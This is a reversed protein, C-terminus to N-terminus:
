DNRGDKTIKIPSNRRRMSLTDLGLHGQPFQYQAMTQRRAYIVQFYHSCVNTTGLESPLCVSPCTDAVSMCYRKWQGHSAQNHTLLFGFNLLLLQLLPHCKNGAIIGVPCKALLFFAITTFPFDTDGETWLRPKRLHSQSFHLIDHTTEKETMALVSQNAVHSSSLLSADATLKHLLPHIMYVSRPLKTSRSKETRLHRQSFCLRM